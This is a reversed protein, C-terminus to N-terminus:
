GETGLNQLENFIFGEFDFYPKYESLGVCFSNGLSSPETLEIYARVYDTTGKNFNERSKRFSLVEEKGPINFKVVRIKKNIAFNLAAKQLKATTFFFAKSNVGGIQQVKSFFEEIDDVPIRKSYDKCEVFIYFSPKLERPFTCEISIDVKIYGGRDKSYYSKQKFIRCCDKNIPLKGSELLHKLYQFMKEEFADGKRVTNM